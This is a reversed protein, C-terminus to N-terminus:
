TLGRGLAWCVRVVVAGLLSCLTLVAVSATGLGYTQVATARVVEDEGEGDQHGDYLHDGKGEGSPRGHNQAPPPTAVVLMQQLLSPCLRYFQQVDITLTQNDLVMNVLERASFRQPHVM